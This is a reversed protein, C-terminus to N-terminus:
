HPRSARFQSWTGAIKCLTKRSEKRSGLAGVYFADAELALFLAEDDFTPNHSLAVVADHPGFTANDPIGRSLRFSAKRLVM